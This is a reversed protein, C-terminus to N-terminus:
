CKQKVTKTELDVTYCRSKEDKVILSSGTLKLETIFVWQVDEEMKPDISRDFVKIRFQEKGMSDSAIVYNGSRGDNPASYTIGKYVVPPVPKPAARKASASDASGFLAALLM